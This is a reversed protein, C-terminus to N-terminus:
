ITETNSKINKGGYGLTDLCKWLIQRDVRYYAKKIDLFALATKKSNKRRQEIIKTLIFIADTTRKDRRFGFQIDGLLNREEVDAELRRGLLRTYLKGVNSTLSIGRYNDLLGKDGGKFLMHIRDVM